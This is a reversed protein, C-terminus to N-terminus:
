TTTEAPTPQPWPPQPAALRHASRRGLALPPRLWAARHPRPPQPQRWLYLLSRSHRGPPWRLGAGSGRPPRCASCACHSVRGMRRRGLQKARHISHRQAKATPSSRARLSLYFSTDFRRVDVSSLAVVAVGHTRLMSRLVGKPWVRSSALPLSMRAISCATCHLAARRQGEVEM